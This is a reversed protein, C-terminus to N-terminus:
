TDFFNIETNEPCLNGYIDMLITGHIATNVNTWTPRKGSQTPILAILVMSVFQLKLKREKNWWVHNTPKNKNQKEKNEHSTPLSLGLIM